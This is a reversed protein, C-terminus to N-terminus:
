DRSNSRAPFDDLDVCPAPQWGKKRQEVVANTFIGGRVYRKATLRM